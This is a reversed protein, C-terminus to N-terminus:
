VKSILVWTKFPRFFQGHNGHGLSIISRMREIMAVGRPQPQRKDSDLFLQRQKGSNSFFFFFSFVAAAQRHNNQEMWPFTLALDIFNCSQSTCYFWRSIWLIVTWVLSTYPTNHRFLTKPHVNMKIWAKVDSARRRTAIIKNHDASSPLSEIITSNNAIAPIRHHKAAVLFGAINTRWSVLQPNTEFGLM